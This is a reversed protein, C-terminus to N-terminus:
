KDEESLKYSITEISFLHINKTPFKHKATAMSKEKNHIFSAIYIDSIGSKEIQSFIHDDNDSLASGILVLNGSLESLKNYCKMLYENQNIEDIKNETQFVCM